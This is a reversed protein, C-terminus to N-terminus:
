SNPPYSTEHHTGEFIPVSGFVGPSALSGYVVPVIPYGVRGTGFLNTSYHKTKRADAAAADKILGDFCDDSNAHQLEDAFSWVAYVIYAMICIISLAIAIYDLRIIGCMFAGGTAVFIEGVNVCANRWFVICICVFDFVFNFTLWALYVQMHVENRYLLGSVGSAIFPLTALSFGCNFTQTTFTASHGFSHIDLILNLVTTVIYFACIATHVVLTLKVGTALGCGCCFSTLRQPM